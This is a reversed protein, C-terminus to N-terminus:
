SKQGDLLVMQEILLFAHMELFYMMRYSIVVVKLKLNAIEM